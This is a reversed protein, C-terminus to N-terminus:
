DEGNYFIHYHGFGITTNKGVHMYKGADLYPTFATLDGEYLVSGIQSPLELKNNKQNMSYSSFDIKRWRQEVIRIQAARNIMEEQNWEMVFDTFAQTMLTFRGMLFRMFVQFPLESCVKGCSVIRVPTDFVVLAMGASEAQINMSHKRLNGLWTRNGAYILRGTDMNSISQLKFPIRAAGWGKREMRKLVDIFIEPNQAAYGFLTLDFVCEEGQRWVTKGQVHPYLVFPNVAGGEGRTNCFNHVYICDYQRKCAFCKRDRMNCVIDRFCHGMIGRITSGPYEPLNGEGEATFTAQLTMINMFNFM